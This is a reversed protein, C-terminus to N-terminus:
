KKEEKNSETIQENFKEVIKKRSESYIVTSSSDYSDFIDVAYSLITGQTLRLDKKPFVEENISFVIPRIKKLLGEVRELNYKDNVLRNLVSMASKQNNPFDPLYYELLATVSDFNLEMKESVKDSIEVQLKIEDKYSEISDKLNQFQKDTGELQASIIALQRKVDKSIQNENKYALKHEIEAWAHMLITRVQIEIKIGELKRYNPSALWEKKIKVISHKSRYGFENIDLDDVKDFSEQLDFETDIIEQVAEIDKPYYVIIRIGCFDENQEFPDSYNKREVKEVFSEFSKIRGTVGIHLIKHEDLFFEIAEITNEIVRKFLPLRNEYGIQLEAIAM